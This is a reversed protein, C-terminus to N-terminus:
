FRIRLGVNLQVNNSRISIVKGTYYNGFIQSYNFEGYVQLQRIPNSAIGLGLHWGPYFGRADRVNSTSFSREIQSKKVILTNQDKGRFVFDFGTYGYLQPGKANITNFRVSLPISIYQSRHIIRMLFVTSDSFQSAQDALDLPASKLEGSPSSIELEDNLSTNAIRIPFIRTTYRNTGKNIGIRVSAFPAFQYNYDLGFNTNRLQLKRDIIYTNSTSGIIGSYTRNNRGAGAYLAIFSYPVFSKPPQAKSHIVRISDTTHEIKKAQLLLLELNDNADMHSTSALISDNPQRSKTTEAILRQVISQLYETPYSMFNTHIMTMTSKGHKTTTSKNQNIKKITPNTSPDKPKQSNLRSCKKTEVTSAILQGNKITTSKANSEQENFPTSVKSQLPKNTTIIPLKVLDSSFGIPHFPVLLFYSLTGLFLGSFVFWWFFPRRRKTPPFLEKEIAPWIFDPATVQHEELKENLLHQLRIDDNHEKM